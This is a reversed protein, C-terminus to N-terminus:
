KGICFRSFIQDLVDENTVAGTIRGIEDLAERLDMALLDGSLGGALADQARAVAERAQRLHRRHRRNMVVPSHEARSLDGAVTERLFNTVPALRDTDRQAHLASLTVRPLDAPPADGPFNAESRENELLDAKNGVLLAANPSASDGAASAGDGAAASSASVHEGLFAREADTLGDALDYLYLLVDAKEIAAEARRVGEAEIEGATDTRLGATDTFRFRVGGLHADAEVRDRTTGPTESTIAREDGVLANLLTSKGANPRGGIVVRVGDRLKEGTAYSGILDALLAEAEDLLETLREEDAFDVDEDSFDLELEIFACLELLEERLDSLRDSYRGKLHKMSARHAARSTADILDAVAEAQALDMKGNLFGRQTFEGPEAPRAGGEYLRELILQPAFDGGHCSLEVVDEGTASRPARFVTAV